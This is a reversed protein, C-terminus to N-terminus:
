KKEGPLPGNALGLEKALGWNSWELIYFDRRAILWKDKQKVYHDRYYGQSMVVPGYGPKEAIIQVYCLGTATGNGTLTVVPNTVNHRLKGLHLQGDNVKSAPNYKDQDSKAAAIIGARGRAFEYHMTQDYLVADPTFLDAYGEIDSSNHAVAYRYMLETIM